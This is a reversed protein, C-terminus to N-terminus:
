ARRRHGILPYRRQNRGISHAHPDHGALACLRDWLRARHRTSSRYTKGNLVDETLSLHIGRIADALLDDRLDLRAFDEADRLYRMAPGLFANLTYLRTVGSEGARFRELTDRSHEYESPM